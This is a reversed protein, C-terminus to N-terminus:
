KNSSLFKVNKSKNEFYEFFFRKKCELGNTGVPFELWHLVVATVFLKGSLVDVEM